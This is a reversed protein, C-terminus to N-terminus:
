EARIVEVVLCKPYDRLHEWVGNVLEVWEDFRKAEDDDPKQNELTVRYWGDEYNM